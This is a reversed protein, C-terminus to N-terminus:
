RTTITLTATLAPSGISEYGAPVSAVVHLVTGPATGAPVTFVFLPASGSSGPPPGGPTPSMPTPEYGAGTNSGYNGPVATVGLQTASNGVTVTVCPRLSRTATTLSTSGPVGASVQPLSFQAYLGVNQGATVSLASASLVLRAGPLSPASVVQPDSFNAPPSSGTVATVQSACAAEQTTTGPAIAPAGAGGNDSGAAPQGIITSTNGGGHALAVVILVVAAAGALATAPFRRLLGGPNLWGISIRRRAAEEAVPPTSPLHVVRAMRAKPLERLAEVTATFEAYAAACDKCSQIHAYFRADDIPSLEDDLAATFLDDVHRRQTM